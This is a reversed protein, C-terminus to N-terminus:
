GPFNYTLNQIHPYSSSVGIKLSSSPLRYRAESLRRGGVGHDKVCHSHQVKEKEKFKM